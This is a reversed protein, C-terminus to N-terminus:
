SRGWREKSTLQEEVPYPKVRVYGGKGMLWVILNVRRGSTIPLAAHRHQGKHIVALGPEMVIDGTGKSDQGFGGPDDARFSVNGGTFNDYGLCVNLTAVSSDRHEKLDVDFDKEELIDNPDRQYDVIFSYNEEADEGAIHEPFIMETLPRVYDRIVGDIVPKFGIQEVHRFSHFM